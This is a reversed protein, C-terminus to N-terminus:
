HLIYIPAEPSLDVHFEDNDIRINKVCIKIQDGNIYITQGARRSLILM